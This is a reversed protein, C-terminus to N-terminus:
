GKGAHDANLADFWRDLARAEERLRQAREVAEADEGWLEAQYREDIRSLDFAQVVTIARAQSALGLVASGLLAIGFALGTLQFDDLSSAFTRAAALSAPPQRVPMVGSVPALRVGRAEAAWRRWPGWAAEQRARLEAPHEALYSVVDTEAYRAAQEALEMRNGPTRDIAVNALRTLHMSALDIREQQASWEAAIAEGLERTPATLLNKAPTKLPRGDLLVSWGGEVSASTAERYFRRPRQDIEGKLGKM